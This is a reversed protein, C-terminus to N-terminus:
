DGIKFRELSYDIDKEFTEAKHHLVVALQVLNLNDPDYGFIRRATQSTHQSKSHFRDNWYNPWLLEQFFKNHIRYKRWVGRRERLAQLAEQETM